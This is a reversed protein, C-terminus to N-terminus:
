SSFGLMVILFTVGCTFGLVFGWGVLGWDTVVQPRPEPVADLETAPGPLVAGYAPLVVTEAQRAAHLVVMPMPATEAEHAWGLAVDVERDFRSTIPTVSM